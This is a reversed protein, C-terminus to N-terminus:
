GATAVALRVDHIGRRRRAVDGSVSRGGAAAGCGGALDSVPTGDPDVESRRLSSDSAGSRFRRFWLGGSGSGRHDGCGGSRRECAFIRDHDPVKGSTQARPESWSRGGRVSGLRTSMMGPPSMAERSRLSHLCPSPRPGGRALFRLFLVTRYQESEVTEAAALAAWPDGGPWDGPPPPPRLPRGSLELQLPWEMRRPRRAFVWGM